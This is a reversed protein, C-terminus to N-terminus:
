QPRPVLCEPAVRRKHKPSALGREIDEIWCVLRWGCKAKADSDQKSEAIKLFVSQISTKGEPFPPVTSRFCAKIDQPVAPLDVNAIPDREPKQLHLFGGSNVCGSLILPLFVIGLQWRYRWRM